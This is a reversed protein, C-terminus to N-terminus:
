FTVNQFIYFESCTKSLLVNFVITINIIYILNNMIMWM